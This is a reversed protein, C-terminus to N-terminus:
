DIVPVIEGQLFDIIKKAQVYKNKNQLVFDRAKKGFEYRERASMAAGKRISAAIDERTTSPLELLYPYYEEPIGELYSSIVPNGSVMFEFLKSPFCYRSADEQVKRPSILLTAKRQLEILEQRSSLFGYFHIRSDRQAAQRIREEANGKGTIWLEFRDDLLQMAELLEPIGYREDLVGSYMVAIKGNENKEPEKMDLLTENGYSGEFVMWKRNQLKLYSVMPKAYLVFEDVKQIMHRIQIWDIKKLTKKLCSMHMDMYQPLDPAILCIKAAPNIKKVELAAKLFPSHMSYLIVTIDKREIYKIAWQRAAKQLAYSRSLISFYPLNVYSVSCDESKGNRSWKEAPVVSVSSRSVKCNESIQCSNITDMDIGLQDIGTQINTESVYASLLVGHHKEIFQLMAPGIGVGIWLLKM